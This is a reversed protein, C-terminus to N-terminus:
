ENTLNTTEDKLTATFEDIAKMDEETITRSLPVSPFPMENSVGIDDLVLDEEAIPVAAVEEVVTPATATIVPETITSETTGHVPYPLLPISMIEPRKMAEPIFWNLAAEIVEGQKNGTAKVFDELMVKTRQSVRASIQADKSPM